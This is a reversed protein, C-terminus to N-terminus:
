NINRYMASKSPYAPSLRMLIKSTVGADIKKECLTYRYYNHHISTTQFDGALQVNRKNKTRNWLDSVCNLQLCERPRMRGKVAILNGTLLFNFKKM